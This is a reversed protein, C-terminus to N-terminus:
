FFFNLYKRPYELPASDTALPCPYSSDLHGTQATSCTPKVIKLPICKWYCFINEMSSSKRFLRTKSFFFIELPSATVAPKFFTVESMCVWLFGDSLALTLVLTATILRMKENWLVTDPVETEDPPPLGAFDGVAGTLFGGLVSSCSPFDQITTLSIVKIM